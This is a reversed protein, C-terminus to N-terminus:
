RLHVTQPADELADAADSIGRSHRSVSQSGDDRREDLREALADLDAEFMHGYATLTFAASSHGMIVQIAKPSAGASILAAAASHRTVHIGVEPLGLRRLTPRWLRGHFASYRLPGGQPGTFVFANADAGVRRGLHAELQVVLSAPLPVSRAAHSKTPGVSIRGSVEALSEEVRLRRQLLNVNRRRLAAAEGFRLGLTGLVRVLLDYPEPMAFAISEIVSPEFYQAESRQMRPLKVGRASNRAVRGDCVAADLTQSLVRHAQRIRSASLGDAEMAGIWAQVESPLLASLPHRGLAPVIRSRLLSEYSAVTKPKLTPRVAELWVAAWEEVTTRGLAPDIWDGRLKSSEVSSLFREADVKRAFCKSRERGDPARYRARYRSAAPVKRGRDQIHAM